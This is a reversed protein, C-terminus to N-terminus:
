PTAASSRSEHILIDSRIAQLQRALRSRALALTARLVIGLVGAGLLVLMIALPLRHADHFFVERAISTFIWLAFVALMSRRIWDRVEDLAALQAELLVVQAAVEARTGSRPSETGTPRVPSLPSPM